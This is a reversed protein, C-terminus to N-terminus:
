ASPTAAPSVSITSSERPASPLAAAREIPHLVASEASTIVIRSSARRSPSTQYRMGSIFTSPGVPGEIPTPTLQLRRLRPEPKSTPIRILVLMSIPVARDHITAGGSRRSRWMMEPSTRRSTSSHTMHGAVPISTAPPRVASASRQCRSTRVNRFREPAATRLSSKGIRQTIPPAIALAAASITTCRTIRPWGTHIVTTAIIKEITRMSTPRRTSPSVLQPGILAREFMICAM